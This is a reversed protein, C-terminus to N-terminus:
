GPITRTRLSGTHDLFLGDADLRATPRDARRRHRGRGTGRDTRRGRSDFGVDAADTADEDQPDPTVAEAHLATTAPVPPPTPM